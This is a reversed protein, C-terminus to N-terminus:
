GPDALNGFAPAAIPQSEREPAPMKPLHFQCDNKRTASFGHLPLSTAGHRNQYMM